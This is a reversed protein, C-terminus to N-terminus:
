ATRHSGTRPIRRARPPLELGGGQVHGQAVYEGRVRLYNWITSTAFSESATNEACASTTGSELRVMESPTHIRRARPPLEWITGRPSLLCIYEGRVRLYNWRQHPPGTALTTNEACASTTGHMTILGTDELLIRRARPPLEKVPLQSYDPM